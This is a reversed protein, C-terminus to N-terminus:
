KGIALFFTTGKCGVNNYIYRNHLHHLQLLRAALKLAVQGEHHEGKDLHGALTRLLGGLLQAFVQHLVALGDALVIDDLPEQVEADAVVGPQLQQLDDVAVLAEAHLLSRGFRGQHHNFVRRGVGVLGQVQAM